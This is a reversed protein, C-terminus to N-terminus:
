PTFEQLGPYQSADFESSGFGWDQSGSTPSSYMAMIWRVPPEPSPSTSALSVLPRRELARIKSYDGILVLVYAHRSPDNPGSETLRGLEPDSLSGWYAHQPPAVSWRAAMQQADALLWAPPPSPTTKHATTTATADAGCGAGLAGAAIAALLSAASLVVAWRRGAASRALPASRM